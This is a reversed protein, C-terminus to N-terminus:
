GRLSRLFTPIIKEKGRKKSAKKIGRAVRVARETSQKEVTFLGWGNLADRTDIPEPHVEKIAKIDRFGLSTVLSSKGTKDALQQVLGELPERGGFTYSQLRFTRGEYKIRHAKGAFSWVKTTLEETM